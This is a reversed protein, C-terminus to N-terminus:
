FGPGTPPTLGAVQRMFETMEAIMVLIAAQPIEHGVGKLVVLRARPIATALAEGNAL